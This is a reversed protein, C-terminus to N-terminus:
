SGTLPEDACVERQADLRHEGERAAAAREARRARRRAAQTRSRKQKRKVVGDEGDQGNQSSRPLRSQSRAVNELTLPVSSLERLLDEKAERSLESAMIRSSMADALAAFATSLAQRDLVSAETISNELELKRTLQRQTALKEESLGGYLADTIQRTTFLGDDDAQADNKALNKRLTAETCQGFEVSARTLFWRLPEAPVNSRAPRRMRLDDDSDCIPALAFLTKVCERSCSAPERSSRRHATM